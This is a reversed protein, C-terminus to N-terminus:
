YVILVADKLKFCVKLGRATSRIYVVYGPLHFRHVDLNVNALGRKCTM